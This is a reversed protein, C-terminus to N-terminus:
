IRNEGQANAQPLQVPVEEGVGAECWRLNVHANAEPPLM